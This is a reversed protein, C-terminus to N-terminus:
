NPRLHVRSVSKMTSRVYIYIYLLIVIYLLYYHVRHRLLINVRKIKAIVKGITFWNLYYTASVYSVFNPLFQCM